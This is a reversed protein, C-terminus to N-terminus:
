RINKILESLESIRIISDIAECRHPSLYPKMASLLCSRKDKPRSPASKGGDRSMMPGVIKMVEPLRQMVASIDPSGEALEEEVEKEEKEESESVAKESSEVGGKSLAAAVTSIIEPNSLVKDLMRSIDPNSGRDGIEKSESM